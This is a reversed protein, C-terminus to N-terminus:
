CGVGFAHVQQITIADSAGSTLCIGVTTAATIDFTSSQVTAVYQQQTMHGTTALNHTVICEASVVCSASLPGRVVAFIEVWAEDAAATGAPKTFSCRATDSTTGATGFAIDITSTATGAATKTMNFYWRFTAGIKFGISPMVLNSGTIYTRTTAAPTQSGTSYNFLDALMRNNGASDVVRFNPPTSLDSYILPKGSVATPAAEVDLVLSM